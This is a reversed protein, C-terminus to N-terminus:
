KNKNGPPFEQIPTNPSSTSTSPTNNNKKTHNITSAINKHNTSQQNTTFNSENLKKSANKIEQSAKRKQHPPPDTTSTSLFANLENVSKILVANSTKQPKVYVGKMSFWCEAINGNKKAQRAVYLLNGYFPTLQQNIMIENKSDTFKTELEELIISKKNKKANLIGFKVSENALQVIISRKAGGATRYIGTILDNPCNFNLVKCIDNFIKLLDESNNAPVGGISINCKLQRQKMCEIEYALHDVNAECDGVRAEIATTQNKIVHLEGSLSKFNDKTENKFESLDNGIGKVADLIDKLSPNNTGM